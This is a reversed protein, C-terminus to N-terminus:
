VDTYGDGGYDHYLVNRNRWLAEEHGKASFGIM